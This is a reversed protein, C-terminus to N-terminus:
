LWGNNKYVEYGIKFAKEIEKMIAPDNKKFHFCCKGKLCKMFGPSFQKRMIDNANIPMYYFGVYGKQVLASIFWLEKRERGMIVVPKHNVLNFQGGTGAHMIMDGKGHYPEAMKKIAEFIVLLEPQGASKDAYKINITREEKKPGATKVAAKKVAKEAVAKKPVAKKAKAAATTAPKAM